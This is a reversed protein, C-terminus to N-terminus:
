EATHTEEELQTLKYHKEAEDKTLFEKACRTCRFTGSEYEYMYIDEYVKSFM